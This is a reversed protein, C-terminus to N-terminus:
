QSGPNSRLDLTVVQAPFHDGDLASLYGWVYGRDLRVSAASGSVMQFRTPIPLLAPKL